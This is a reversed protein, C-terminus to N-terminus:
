PLNPEKGFRAKREAYGLCAQVRGESIAPKRARELFDAKGFTETARNSKEYHLHCYRASSLVRVQNGRQM